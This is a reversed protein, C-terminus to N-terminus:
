ARGDSKTKFKHLELTLSKTEAKLQEIWKECEVPKQLPAIEELKRASVIAQQAGLYNLAGKLGHASRGLSVFDHQQLATEIDRLMNSHEDLFVDILDNLLKRDGGVTDFAQRWDVVRTSSSKDPQPHTGSRRGTLREIADMLSNRRLPKALYEDMGAEFCQERFGQYTHASLAIIPVHTGEPEGSRIQRTAELGDVGPMQVDMLVLDFKEARFQEIAESGNQAITVDHGFKALIARALRQNILNDEALLIKLPLDNSSQTNAQSPINTKPAEGLLIALRKRLDSPKIPKLMKECALEEWDPGFRQGSTLLVIPLTQWDSQDRLWRVFGKPDEDTSLDLLLAGVRRETTTLHIKAAEIRDCLNVRAGTLRLERELIAASPEHDEVALIMYDNLAPVIAAENTPTAEPLQLHFHFRSGAGLTSELEIETGMMEIIKSAIALGLGTGGYQRATSKDAQEFEGFISKQKELPIGIGTDIVELLVERDSNPQSVRVVVQGEHTFKIANSVLNSVVQQLRPGDGELWVPHDVNLDLVLEIRKAHARLALSRVTDAVSDCLEFRESDLELKGAEIKSFDLLDNILNLLSEASQRIMVLYERQTREIVTDLLLETMGMIGNMPTRIEHSVSALFDSKSRSASEAIEKASELEQQAVIRETVDWFIGQIGIRRGRNDKVPVKIVEVFTKGGDPGPHEEIKHLPMGTEIIARDDARYQEALEHTFLDEDTKGILEDISKGISECYTDNCFVLRGQQNKRFVRIPISQVLSEYIARAEDLQQEARVRHTIDKAFVGISEPEGSNSRIYCFRAELWCPTGDAKLVRFETQFEHSTSLQELSDLIIPRDDPHIVGLWLSERANLNSKELGYVTEAPRNMYTIRKGDLSLAWVLDSVLDLLQNASGDEREDQNPDQQASM